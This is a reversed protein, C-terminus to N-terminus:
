EAQKAAAAADLEAKLAKLDRTVFKPVESLLTTNGLPGNCTVRGSQSGPKATGNRLDKVLQKTSEPTLDEYFWENNVQLMPANVCAGLCEVETMTFMGDETTEGLGIGLEETLAQVIDDFGRLMCPTTGCVQLHFKPMRRRNFMTYFTAVEYVRMPHVECLEAIKDMAALPVWNGCQKQAVYLLPIVGSRRYNSPYKAFIKEIQTQSEENFEFEEDDSTPNGAEYIHQPLPMSLARRATTAAGLTRVYRLAM